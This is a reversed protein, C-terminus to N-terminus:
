PNIRCSINGKHSEKIVGNRSDNISFRVNANKERIKNRLFDKVVECAIGADKEDPIEITIKM